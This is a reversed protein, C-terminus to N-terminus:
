VNQPIEYDRQKLNALNDRSDGGKHEDKLHIKVHQKLAVGLKFACIFIRFCCFTAIVSHM